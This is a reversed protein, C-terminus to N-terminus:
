YRCVNLNTLIAMLWVALKYTLCIKYSLNIKSKSIYEVIIKTKLFLKVTVYM